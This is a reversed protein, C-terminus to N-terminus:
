KRHLLYKRRERGKKMVVKRPLKNPISQHVNGLYDASVEYGCGWCAVIVESDGRMMTECYPCPGVDRISM